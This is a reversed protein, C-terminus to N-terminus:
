GNHPQDLKLKLIASSALTQAILQRKHKEQPWGVINAHRPPNNDADINLKQKKVEIAAIDGRGHLTRKAQQGVGEGITWIDSENLGSTRFVSICLDDSRPMFATYIIRQELANYLSEAFIYRSLIESPQVPNLEFTSMSPSYEKLM